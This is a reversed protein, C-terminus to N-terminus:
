PAIYANQPIPSSTATWLTNLFAQAIPSWETRTYVALERAMPRHLHKLLHELDPPIVNRPLLTPGLGTAAFRVLAEVQTSHVAPNPTFGADQCAAAVLPAMGTGPSPLVWRRDALETLHIPGDTTLAPDGEPMLVVFEEWGLSAVPGRWVRPMPGIAIDATGARVEEELTEKNRYERLDVLVGPYHERLARISQPLLGIAISFVTAVQLEATALSHSM